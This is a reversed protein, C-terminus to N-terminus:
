LTALRIKECAARQRDRLDRKEDEDLALRTGTQRQQATSRAASIPLATDAPAQTPSRDPTM